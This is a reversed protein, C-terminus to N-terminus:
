SATTNRGALTTGNVAVIFGENISTSCSEM